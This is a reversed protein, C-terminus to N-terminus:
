QTEQFAVNEFIFDMCRQPALGSVSQRQSTYIPVEVWLGDVELMEQDLIGICM